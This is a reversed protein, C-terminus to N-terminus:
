IPFRRFDADRTCIRSIGHERMLAATHVDHMVNGHLDPLKALTRALFSAHRPTAVLVEFGPPVVLTEPM